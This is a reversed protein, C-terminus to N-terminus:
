GYVRSRSPDIRLSVSGRPARCSAEERVASPGVRHAGRKQVDRIDGDLIGSASQAALGEAREVRYRDIDAATFADAQYALGPRALGREPAGNEPEGRDGLPTHEEFSSVDGM